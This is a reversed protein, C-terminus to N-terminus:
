AVNREHYLHVRMLGKTVRDLAETALFELKRYAEQETFFATDGIGIFATEDSLADFRKWFHCTENPAYAEVSEVRFLVENVIHLTKVVITDM